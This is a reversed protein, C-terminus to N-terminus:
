AGRVFSLYMTNSLKLNKLISSRNIVSLAGTTPRSSIKNNLVVASAGEARSSRIGGANFSRNVFLRGSGELVVTGTTFLQGPGELVSAGATLLRVSGELAVASTILMQWLGELVAAKTTLLWAQGM